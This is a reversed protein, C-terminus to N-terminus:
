KERQQLQKLERELDSADVGRQKAEQIKNHLDAARLAPVREFISRGIEEDWDNEERLFVFYVLMVVTSAM